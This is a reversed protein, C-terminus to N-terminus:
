AVYSILSNCNARVIEASETHHLREPVADEDPVLVILSLETGDIGVPAAPAENDEFAEALTALM